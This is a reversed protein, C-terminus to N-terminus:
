PRVAAELGAFAAAVSDAWADIAAWDRVDSAAVRSLPFHHQSPDFAGGFLATTLPHVDPEKALGAALQAESSAVEEPALTRPGLAFVALPRVAFERHHRHLFSRADAHLRGTYIASGVVIGDYGDLSAVDRASRVFVTIGHTRLREGVAEAVECTSGHKSAYAILVTSVM